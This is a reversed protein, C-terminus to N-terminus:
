RESRFEAMSEMARERQAEEADALAEMFYKDPESPDVIIESDGTESPIVRARLTRNHHLWRDALIEALSNRAYSAADEMDTCDIEESEPERVWTGGALKEILILHM